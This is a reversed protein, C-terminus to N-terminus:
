GINSARDLYSAQGVATPHICRHDRAHRCRHICGAEAPGDILTRLRRAIPGLSWLRVHPHQLGFVTNIAFLFWLEVELPLTSHRDLM